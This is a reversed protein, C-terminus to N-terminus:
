IKSGKILKVLVNTKKVFAWAMHKLRKIFTYWSAAWVTGRLLEPELNGKETTVVRFAPLYEFGQHQVWYKITSQNLPNTGLISLCFLQSNTKIKDVNDNGRRWLTWSPHQILTTEYHVVRYNRSCQDEWPRQYSEWGQDTRVLHHDTDIKTEAM